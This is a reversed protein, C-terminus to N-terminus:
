SEVVTAGIVGAVVAGAGALATVGVIGFVVVVRAGIVVVVV